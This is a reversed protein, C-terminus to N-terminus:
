EEFFWQEPDRSITWLTAWAWIGTEPINRLKENFILVQPVYGVDGIVWLQEAQHELIKKGLEIRKQEDPEVKAQEWWSRLEKIRAPPEEGQAGETQFWLAWAPASNQSWGPMMPLFWHVYMPFLSDLVEGGTWTSCDVMNGTVRVSALEGSIQKVRVDLGLAKWYEAALEVRPITVQEIEFSEITFSLREGDPRELWGDGDKDALGMEDLLRKAEEPDYEIYANAFRPEYYKSSDFVTYQMPKGKSFFFSENIEERNLALSLAKRFRLDQFVERLGLDTCTQNVAYITALNGYDWLITRYGGAEEYTKYMPYNQLNTNFGAFDLEGSIIKGNYVEKDTLINTRIEDIYPLQNGETDVKWFYPNREFVRRDPTEKVCKYATVTPCDSNMLLGYRSRFKYLYLQYWHDFEGEKVMEALKEESTYNPHFQKLYHKPTVMAWYNTSMFLVNRFFPNPAVFEVQVTYDDLKKLKMVEGKAKWDSGIAPTLEENLLVDNYWFMIDDATYLQGDSWKLGKRLHITWVTQDESSEVRKALHPIFESGDATCKVLNPSSLVMEDDCEPGAGATHIIGGYRGIKEAPVVVYIDEAEPLREEIPPLEGAAVMTRLTPAENYEVALTSTVGLLCFVGTLLVIVLKRMM